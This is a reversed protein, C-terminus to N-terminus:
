LLKGQHSPEALLLQYRYLGNDIYERNITHGGFRDKRLHRLQASVSAAPHGTAGSIENLTRWRGDKMLLFIDLIQGRLRAHDRPPQYDAGNFRADPLTEKMRGM